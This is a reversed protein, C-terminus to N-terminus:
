AHSGANEAMLMAHGVGFAGDAIVNIVRAMEIQKFGRTAFEEAM